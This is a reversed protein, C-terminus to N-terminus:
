LSRTIDSLILITGEDLTYATDPSGSVVGQLDWYLKSAPWTNTDSSPLTITGITDSGDFTIEGGSVSAQALADTDDTVTSAPVSERLTFKLSDTFDSGTWGGGLTFSYEFVDGRYHDPLQTSM